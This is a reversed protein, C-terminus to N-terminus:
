WWGIKLKFTLAECSSGYRRNAYDIAWKTQTLPSTMYDAGFPAMKSAPKAQWLGYAIDANPDKPVGAALAASNWVTVRWSSEMRAIEWLCDSQQVGIQARSYAQANAITDAGSPASPVPPVWSRNYQDAPVNFDAVQDSALQATIAADTGQVSGGNDPGTLFAHIAADPIWEGQYSGTGLPDMVWIKGTLPDRRDLYIAHGTGGSSNAFGTEIAYQYYQPNVSSSWQHYSGAVEAGNGEDLWDLLQQWTLQRDGSGFWRWPLQINYIANAGNVIDPPQGGGGVSMDGYPAGAVTRWNLIESAVQTNSSVDLQGQTIKNILMLASAFTCDVEGYKNAPYGNAHAQDCLGPNERCSQSVFPPTYSSSSGLGGSTSHSLYNDVWANATSIFDCTAASGLKAGTAPDIIQAQATGLECGSYAQWAKWWDAITPAVCASSAGPL